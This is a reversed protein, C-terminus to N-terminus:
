RSPVEIQYVFVGPRNEDGVVWDADRMWNPMPASRSVTKKQNILAPAGGSEASTPVVGGLEPPVKGSRGLAAVDQNELWHSLADHLATRSKPDKWNHTWNELKQATASGPAATVVYLQANSAPFQVHKSEYAALAWSQAQFGPAAESGNGAFQFVALTCPRKLAQFQLILPANRPPPAKVSVKKGGHMLNFRAGQQPTALLGTSGLLLSMAIWRKWFM